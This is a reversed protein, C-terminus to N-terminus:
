RPNIPTTHSPNTLIYEVSGCADMTARRTTPGGDPLERRGRPRASDPRNIYRVGVDYVAHDRTRVRARNGSTSLKANPDVTDAGAGAYRITFPKAV